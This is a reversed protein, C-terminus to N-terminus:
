IERDAAADGDIGRVALAGGVQDPAGVLSEVLRLLGPAILDPVRLADGHAGVERHVVPAAPRGAVGLRNGLGASAPTLIPALWPERSAAWEVCSAGRVVGQIPRGCSRSRRSGSPRSGAAS